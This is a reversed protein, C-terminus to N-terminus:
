NEIFIGAVVLDIGTGIIMIRVGKRTVFSKGNGTWDEGPFENKVAGSAGVSTTATSTGMWKLGSWGAGIVGFAGDVWGFDEGETGIGVEPGVALGETAALGVHDIRTFDRRPILVGM